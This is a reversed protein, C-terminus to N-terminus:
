YWAVMNWAVACSWKHLIACLVHELNYLSVSYLHLTGPNLNRQWGLTYTNSLSRMGHEGQERIVLQYRFFHCLTWNHLSGTPHIYKCSMCQIRGSWSSIYLHRLFPLWRLVILSNIEFRPQIWLTCTVYSGTHESTIDISKLSHYRLLILNGIDFTYFQIQHLHM